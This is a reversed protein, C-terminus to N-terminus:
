PRIKQDQVAAAIEGLLKRAYAPSEPVEVQAFMATPRGAPGAFVVVGLGLKIQPTLKM